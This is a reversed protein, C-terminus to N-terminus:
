CNAFLALLQLIIKLQKILRYVHWYHSFACFYFALILWVFHRRMTVEKGVRKIIAVKRSSSRLSSYLFILSKDFFYLSKKNVFCLPAKTGSEAYKQNLNKM